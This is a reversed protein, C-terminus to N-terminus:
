LLYANFFAGPREYWTDFEAAIADVMSQDLWGETIATRAMGALQAQFLHRAASSGGAVRWEVRVGIGGDTRVRGRAAARGPPPPGPAARWQAPPNTPPDGVVKLLLTVPTFIDASMDADRVGVVGPTLVRRLERLARM